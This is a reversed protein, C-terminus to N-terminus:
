AYEAQLVRAALAAEELLVDLAPISTDWEILTPVPGFRRCAAEYLSWVPAAVRSGHDDILVDGDASHGALHIEAVAQVPIELLAEVPDFGHNVANVYLNNVDLLIGCGSRRALEALFAFESLESARFQLYSSVNEILVRRRLTEQVQTVHSVVQDLAERTFPLPLLDNFHRPGIAAWCLHESVLAPEIREVLRKLKALHRQRVGDASGLSLAVGHLSVPYRSRVQELVHLDYGGAGFYNESHVELWGARPQSDLLERYHPARLGIGVGRVAVQGESSSLLSM